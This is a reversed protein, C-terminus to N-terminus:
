QLIVTTLLVEIGRVGEEALLLHQGPIEIVRRFDAIEGWRAEEECWLLGSQRWTPMNGVSRRLLTSCLLGLAVQFISRSRPDDISLRARLHMGWQTLTSHDTFGSATKRLPQIQPAGQHTASSPQRRGRFVLGLRGAKHALPVRSSTLSRALRQRLPEAILRVLDICKTSFYDTQQEVLCTALRM